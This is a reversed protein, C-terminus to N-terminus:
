FSLLTHRQLSAFYADVTTPLNEVGNRRNVKGRLDRRDKLDRQDRLDKFDSFERESQAAVPLTDLARIERDVLGFQSGDFRLPGWTGVSNAGGQSIQLDIIDEDDGAIGGLVFDTQISVLWTGTEDLSIATVDESAAGLDSVDLYLSWTGSTVTGLSTPVFELFDEDTVSIGGVTIPGAVSVILHGNSLLEVGDVNADAQDAPLEVDSADFYHEFVGSTQDGLSSGIFRVLDADDVLETIGPLTISEAFSLLLDNPSIIALGDLRVAGLGVDSGDFYLSFNVGDFAVLDENAATVGGVTTTVDFAMLLTPGVPAAVVTVHITDDDTLPASAGDGTDTVRLTVDGEGEFGATASLTLRHTIPDISAIVGPFTSVVTFTASASSTEVDAYYNDLDIQTNASGSSVQVDPIGTLAPADNVAQVQLSVTAVNSIAGQTDRITYTFSDSGRFNSTPTYQFVGNGISVLTGSTPGSVVTVSNTLLTGDPDFDIGAGHDELVSFQIQGDELLLLADDRAVPPLNPPGSAAVVDMGNINNAALGFASGDFWLSSALIGQTAAGTVQPLFVSIDEDDVVRGAVSWADVLSFYLEGQGGISMADIDEAGLGLDSGDFYWQWSGSTEAGLTLPIFRLIDEDQASIGSVSVAGTTTVLLSGDPLVEFGDIDEGSLTLDVDSGDFYMSFSGATATGISSAVFRVIDSDDVTGVVGPLTVTTDISLLVESDNVITFGDIRKSALGVDSGDFWLSLTTGDYRVIDEDSVTLGGPLTASSFLSFYLVQENSIRPVVHVTVDDVSSLVGDSATLRLVYDGAVSFSATTAALSANGFTVDGPGAVAQWQVVLTGPPVPLGDDAVIGSLVAQEGMLVVQDVGAAASPAANVLVTEYVRGDLGNDIGGDAIYLALATPSDNPNSTPGFTLGQPAIPAPQYGAISYEEVFQGTTTYAFVKMDPTSVVYLLGNQPNYAIGEPDAVRDGITFRRQFQLHRNYVMVQKGGSVGQAVYLDGSVPNAAIGEPDIASATVTNTQISLLPTTLTADYRTVQFTDDNTVYFYGDVENYAIGTPESNGTAIARVLSNGTPTVEFVNNGNFVSPIENIESDAIFFTGGPAYYEISAPDTSPIVGGNWTDYHRVLSLTGTLLHRSELSECSM